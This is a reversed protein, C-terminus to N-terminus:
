EGLLVDLVPWTALPTDALRPWAGQLLRVIERAAREETVEFGSGRAGVLEPACRGEWLIRGDHLRILRAEIGVRTIRAERGWTQEHHFVDVILVQGIGHPTALREVLEGPAGGGGQLIPLSGQLAALLDPARQGLLERDVLNFWQPALEASVRRAMRRSPGALDGARPSELVVIRSRYREAPYAPDPAVFHAPACGWLAGCLGVAWV